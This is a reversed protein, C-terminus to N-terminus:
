HKSSNGGFLRKYYRQPQGKASDKCRPGELKECALKRSYTRVKQLGGIKSKM